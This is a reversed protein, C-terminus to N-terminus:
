SVLSDLINFMEKRSLRDTPLCYAYNNQKIVLKKITSLYYVKRTISDSLHKRISLLHFINSGIFRLNAFINLKKVDMFLAAETGTQLTQILNPANFERHHFNM